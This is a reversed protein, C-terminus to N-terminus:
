LRTVHHVIEYRAVVGQLHFSSSVDERVLNVKTVVMVDMNPLPFSEPDGLTLGNQGVHGVDDARHAESPLRGHQLLVLSDTLLGVLTLINDFMSDNLSTKM